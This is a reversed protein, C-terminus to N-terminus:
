QILLETFYIGMVEGDTLQQNFAQRLDERLEKAEPDSQIDEIKKSRLIKILTDCLLYNKEELESTLKKNGKPYVLVCTVRVYHGGEGALNVVISPLYFAEEKKAASASPSTKEKVNGSKEQAFLFYATTGAALFFLILGAVLILKGKAVKKEEKQRRAM